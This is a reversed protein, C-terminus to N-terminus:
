DYNKEVAYGSKLLFDSLNLGDLSLEAIWRGYKGTGTTTVVVEQASEALDKVTQKAELGKAKMEETTGRGLRTEYADIRALRVRIKTFVTFGLDVELDLTDADVVKTIQAKYTFM